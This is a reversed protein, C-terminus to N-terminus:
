YVPREEDDAPMVRVVHLSGDSAVGLDIWYHQGAAPSTPVQPTLWPAGLTARVRLVEADAAWAPTAERALRQASSAVEARRHLTWGATVVAALTAAVAAWRLPSAWPRSARRAAWTHVTQEMRWNLRLSPELSKLEDRLAVLPSVAAPVRDSM